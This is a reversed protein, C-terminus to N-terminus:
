NESKNSDSKKFDLSCSNICYRKGNAKPGDNFVHGLHSGCNRCIVEIRGVGHTFDDKTEINKKVMPNSFSPWGTGSYFKTDSSFLKAGCAACLYYGEEKSNWYKGTFARETGKKRLIEYQEPTLKKKWEAETKPISKM